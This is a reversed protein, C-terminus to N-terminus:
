VPNQIVPQVSCTSYIFAENENGREQEARSREGVRESLSMGEWAHVSFYDGIGMLSCFWLRGIGGHGKVLAM